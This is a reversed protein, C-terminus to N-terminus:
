ESRCAFKGKYERVVNSIMRARSSYTTLPRLYTKCCALYPSYCNDLTTCLMMERVKTALLRRRPALYSTLTTWLIRYSVLSGWMRKTGGALFSRRKGAIKGLNFKARSAIDASVLLRVNAQGAKGHCSKISQGGFKCSPAQSPTSSRQAAITKVAFSYFM